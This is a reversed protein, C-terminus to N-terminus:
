SILRIEKGPSSVVESKEFQKVSIGSFTTQLLASLVKQQSPMCFYPLDMFFQRGLILWGGGGEKHVSRLNDLFRYAEVSDYTVPM